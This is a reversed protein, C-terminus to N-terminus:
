DWAFWNIQLHQGWGAATDVRVINVTCNTETVRRVTVAFTDDVDTACRASVVVTPPDYFGKPFTFTFNTKVTASDTAMQAVGGQMQQFVGMGGGLRFTSALDVGAGPNSIGFGVPGNFTNFGSFTQSANKLAVNSSLQADALVGSSIKSANLNTLGDGGGTFTGSLSVNTANNTIVVSPVQGLPLPTSLASATNAFVAYPTPTLPQLPNLVTYGSALNTKVEIQLWYNSGNFLGPGFDITALFLGGNVPVANTLFPGSVFDNGAVDGALRFRFDYVGNAPGGGSNLRGQYTFATGQGQVEVAFFSLLFTFCLVSAIRKTKM